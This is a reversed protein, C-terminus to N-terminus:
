RSLYNSIAGLDIVNSYISYSGVANTATVKTRFSCYAKYDSISIAGITFNYNLVQGISINGISIYSSNNSFKKLFDTDNSSSTLKAVYVSCRCGVNSCDSRFLSSPKYTLTNYKGCVYLSLTSSTSNTITAEISLNISTIPMTNTKTINLKIGYFPMNLQCAFNCDPDTCSDSYTSYQTNNKTINATITPVELKGRLYGLDTGASNYYGITTGLTSSNSYRNGLDQGNNTLYGVGGGNSNNVYFLNDLDTGSSNFYNVAM